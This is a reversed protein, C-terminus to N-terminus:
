EGLRDVGRLWPDIRVIVETWDPTPTDGRVICGKAASAANRSASAHMELRYKASAAGPVDHAVIALMMAELDERGRHLAVEARSLEGDSCRVEDAHKRERARRLVDRAVRANATMADILAEADRGPQSSPDSPENFGSQAIATSAVGLIAALAALATTKM